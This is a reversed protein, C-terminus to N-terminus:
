SSIRLRPDVWRSIEYAVINLTVLFVTYILTVGMIMPYDRNSISEVFMLGLGPINFIKEVVFSGTLIAAAQPGLYALLPGFTHRLAHVVVIRIRGLGKARATRLFDSSLVEILQGRIMRALFATPYAALAISPLVASRIDRWGTLFYNLKYSFIYLLLTALIFSPFSAGLAVIVANIRDCERSQRLAAAVGLPFAMALALLISTCGLVLSVPLRQMILEGVSRGRNHYSMGFSFMAADGLYGVYQEWLTDDLNYKAKLAAETSPPLRRDQTFPGGPISKMLFFTATAVIFAVLLLAGAFRIVYFVHGYIRNL